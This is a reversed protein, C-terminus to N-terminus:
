RMLLPVSTSMISFDRHFVSVKLGRALHEYELGPTPWFCFNLADLVLLYQTTAADGGRFHTEAAFFALDVEIQVDLVRVTVFGLRWADAALTDKGYNSTFYTNDIRSRHLAGTCRSAHLCAAAKTSAPAAVNLVVAMWFSQPALRAVDCIRHMLRCPQAVCQAGADWQPRQLEALEATSM